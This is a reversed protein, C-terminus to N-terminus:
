KTLYNNLINFNAKILVSSQGIIWCRWWFLMGTMLKLLIGLCILDGLRLQGTFRVLSWCFWYAYCAGMRSSRLVVGFQTSATHQQLFRLAGLTFGKGSWELLSCPSPPRHGAPLSSMGWKIDRCYFQRTQSQKRAGERGALWAVILGRGCCMM